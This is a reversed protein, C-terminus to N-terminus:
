HNRSAFDNDTSGSNAVQPRDTAANDDFSSPSAASAVPSAPPPPAIYDIRRPDRTMGKALAFAAVHDPNQLGALTAKLTENELRKQRLATRMAAQNIGLSTIHAYAALYLVLLACVVATCTVAMTLLRAESRAMRDPLARGRRPTRAPAPSSAPRKSPAPTGPRPSAAPLPRASTRATNERTPQRTELMAIVRLFGDETHAARATRDQPSAPGDEM